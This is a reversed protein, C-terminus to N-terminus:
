NVWSKCILAAPLIPKRITRRRTNPSSPKLRPTVGPAWLELVALRHALAPSPLATIAVGSNPDPLLRYTPETDHRLLSMDYHGSWAQDPAEHTGSM